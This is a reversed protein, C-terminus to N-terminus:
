QTPGEVTDVGGLPQPVDTRIINSLNSLTIDTNTRDLKNTLPVSGSRIRHRKIKSMWNVQLREEVRSNKTRDFYHYVGDSVKTEKVMYILNTARHHRHSKTKQGLM